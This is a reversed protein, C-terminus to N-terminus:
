GLKARLVAVCDAIAEHAVDLVGSMTIFGHIMGDYCRYTTAVGAASLADAYAKGEDRLPDFGATIIHASPLKSHDLSLLPSARWDKIEAPDNLYHGRFYLMLERTLNYGEAFLFQSAHEMAMDTAPYILLQFKLAPGGRDRCLLSVITALNGGASDGGVAIRTADISLSRAQESVYRVTAEADDVAAPFKHEPGMRYDVAIVACGAGNSLQRCLADHSELDGVVWGGGHFYILVPLVESVNKGAPRYHRVPIPGRTSPVSFDNVSGIDPTPPLLARRMEKFQVRAEVPPFRNIPMRGSRAAANLLAQVQPDIAM